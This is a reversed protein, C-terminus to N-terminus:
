FRGINQRARQMGANIDWKVNKLVEGTEEFRFVSWPAHARILAKKWNNEALWKGNAIKEVIKLSVM